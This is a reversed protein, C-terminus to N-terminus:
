PSQAPRRAAASLRRTLRRPDAAAQRQPHELARDDLPRWQQPRELAAGAARLRQPHEPGARVGQGAAGPGIPRRTRQHRRQPKGAAATRRCSLALSRRLGAAARRREAGAGPRHRPGHRPRRRRNSGPGRRPPRHLGPRPLHARRGAAVVPDAGLAATARGSVVQGPRLAARRRSGAAGGAAFDARQGAPTQAAGPSRHEM